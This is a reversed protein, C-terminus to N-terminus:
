TSNDSVEHSKVGDKSDAKDMTKQLRMQLEKVKMKEEQEKVKIELEKVIQKQKELEM